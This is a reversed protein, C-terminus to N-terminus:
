MASRSPTACVDDKSTQSVALKTRRQPIIEHHSPQPTEVLGIMKMEDGGAGISAGADEIRVAELSLKDGGEGVQAGLQVQLQAEARDAVNEHGLVAM